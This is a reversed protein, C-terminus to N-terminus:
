AQEAAAAGVRPAAEEPAPLEGVGVVVVVVEAVVM